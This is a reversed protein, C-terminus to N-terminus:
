WCYDARVVERGETCQAPLISCHIQFSVVRMLKSELQTPAVDYFDDDCHPQFCSSQHQRIFQTKMMAIHVHTIFM